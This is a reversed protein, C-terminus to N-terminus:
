TGEHTVPGCVAVAKRSKSASRDLSPQPQLSSGIVAYVRPQLVTGRQGRRHARVRVVAGTSLHRWHSRVEHLRKPTPVVTDGRRTALSEKAALDLCVHHILTSGLTDVGCGKAARRREARNLTYSLVHRTDDCAREVVAVVTSVAEAYATLEEDSRVLEPVGGKERKWGEYTWGDATFYVALLPIKSTYCYAYLADEGGAIIFVGEGTAVAAFLPFPLNRGLKALDVEFDVGNETLVESLDFVREAEGEGEAPVGMDPWDRAYAMRSKVLGVVAKDKM